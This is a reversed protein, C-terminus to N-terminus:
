KEHLHHRAGSHADVADRVEARQWHEAPIAERWLRNPLLEDFTEIVEPGMIPEFATILAARATSQDMGVVIRRRGTRPRPGDTHRTFHGNCPSSCRHLRPAKGKPVRTSRPTGSLRLSVDRLHVM